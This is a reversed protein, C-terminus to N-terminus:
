ASGHGASRTLGRIFFRAPHLAEALGIAVPAPAGVITSVIMEALLPATVLGRSGLGSLIQVGSVAVGRPYVQRLGTRLGDYAGAYHGLDPLPGAVPLRDPTQCRLSVRPTSRGAELTLALDPAMQAIAAINRATAERSTQVADSGTHRDYTAGVVLGGKPAPALYPGFALAQLPPQAEPFWEIQGAVTTLPLGRAEVFRLADAGNALVVSTFPGEDAGGARVYLAEGKQLLREARAPVIDTGEILASVFACPDVVGARRLLLTDGDAALYDEPLLRAAAIKSLRTRADEDEAALRVGCPNFVAGGLGILLRETYLFAEVFFRAAPGDGLDLRPMILGAPNGSAGSALARGEFLVAELGARRAAHALSAGAIGGGIIAMRPHPQDGGLGGKELPPIAGLGSSEGGQFPPALPPDAARETGVCDFWPARVRRASPRILRGILMERKQGYGASKQVEFGADELGRRVGGAVTYTAITAGPASLRAVERMIDPAWIDANKAPSFGDLFWADINAEARPLTEAAEGYLLTLSVDGDLLLRHTGPVPPPLLARLRRALASLAPWAAHARGLDAPAFPTREISLIHLRANVRRESRRWLDWACLCNLGSGFGLEGITFLDAQRFREALRNGDLFVHRTEAEGAGSFYIDGCDLSRPTEGAWDLRAYDLLSRRSPRATM